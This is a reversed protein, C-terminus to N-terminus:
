ARAAREAYVAALAQEAEEREARRDALATTAVLANRRATAQAEVPWDLLPRLLDRPRPVRPLTM